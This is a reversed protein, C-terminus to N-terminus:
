AGAPHATLRRRGTSRWRPRLPAPESVSFPSKFHCGDAGELLGAVVLVGAFDDGEADLGLAHADDGVQAGGALVSGTVPNQDAAGLDANYALAAAVLDSLRPDGFAKWWEAAAADESPTAAARWGAPPTVSATAPPATRPGPTTCATLASLATLGILARRM